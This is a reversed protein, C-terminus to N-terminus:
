RVTAMQRARNETAKKLEEELNKVKLRLWPIGRVEALTTEVIEGNSCITLKGGRSLAAWNPKDSKHM